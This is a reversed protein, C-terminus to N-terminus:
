HVPQFPKNTKSGMLTLWLKWVTEATEYLSIFRQLLLPTKIDRLWVKAILVFEGNALEKLMFHDQRDSRVPMPDPYASHLFYEICLVRELAKEYYSDLVVRIDYHYVGLVGTRKQFEKQREHRIFSIHNLYLYDAPLPDGPEVPSLRGTPQPETTSLKVSGGEPPKIEIKGGLIDVTLCSGKGFLQSIERRFLWVIFIVALPWILDALVGVFNSANQM